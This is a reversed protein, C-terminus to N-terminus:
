QESEPDDKEAPHESPPSDLQGEYDMRAFVMRGSATQVLSTVECVVTKGIKKRAGDVVVMTGDDLFGVGQGSEKGPRAVQIEIPEGPLYIPKVAKALANINLVKVNQLAAVKQLNVDNTLLPCKLDQALKVLKADVTKLDPYPRQEVKVTMKQRLGDLLDLARKGRLRDSERPADAKAQVEDLVFRSVVLTGSVFGTDVIESLRGDIIVSTDVVFRQDGWNRQGAGSEMLEAFSHIFVLRSGFFAGMLALFITSLVILFPGVYTGVAPISSFDIQRLALNVFFAIILGFLLGASGMLVEQVSLRQLSMAFADVARLALRTFAPALTLGLLIGLLIFSLFNTIRGTQSLTHYFGETYLAISYGCLGGFIIFVFSFMM